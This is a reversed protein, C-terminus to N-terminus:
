AFSIGVTGHAGVKDYEIEEILYVLQDKHTYNDRLTGALFNLSDKTVGLREEEMKKVMAKCEARVDPSLEMGEGKLIDPSDLPLTHNLISDLLAPQRALNEKRYQRMDWDNSTRLIPLELKLKSLNTADCVKKTLQQAEDDGLVRRAEIILKLASNTGKLTKDFPSPVPLELETLHSYDTLDDDNTPLITSQILQGFIHSISFTTMTYDTTLANDYAYQIAEDIGSGEYSNTHPEEIHADVEFPEELLEELAAQLGPSDEEEMM